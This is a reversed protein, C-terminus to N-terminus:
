QIQRPNSIMKGRLEMQSWRLKFLNMQDCPFLLCSDILYIMRNVEVIFSFQEITLNLNILMFYKMLLVLLDILLLLQDIQM